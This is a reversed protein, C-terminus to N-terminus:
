RGGTRSASSATSTGRIWAIATVKKGTMKVTGVIEDTQGDVMMLKDHIMGQLVLDKAHASGAGAVTLAAAAWARLLSTRKM